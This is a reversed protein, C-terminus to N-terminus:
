KQFFYEACKPNISLFVSTDGYFKSLSYEILETETLRDLVRLVNTRDSVKFVNILIEINTKEQLIIFRQNNIFVPILSYLYGKDSISIEKKCVFEDLGLFDCGIM